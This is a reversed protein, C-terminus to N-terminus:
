FRSYNESYRIHPAQSPCPASLPYVVSHAHVGADELLLLVQPEPEPYLGPPGLALGSIASDPPLPIPMSIPVPVAVPADLCSSSFFSATQPLSHVMAPLPSEQLTSHSIPRMALLDYPHSVSTPVEAFPYAYGIDAPAHTPVWVGYASAASQGSMSPSLKDTTPVAMAPHDMIATFQHGSWAEPLIASIPNPLSIYDNQQM